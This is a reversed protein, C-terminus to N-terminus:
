VGRENGGGREENLRFGVVFISAKLQSQTLKVECRVQVNRGKLDSYTFIAIKLILSMKLVLHLNASSHVLFLQLRNM